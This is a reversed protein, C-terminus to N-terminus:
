FILWTVKSLDSLKDLFGAMLTRKGVAWSVNTWKESSLYKFFSSSFCKQWDTERSIVLCTMLVFCWLDLANLQCSSHLFRLKTQNHLSTGPKGTFKM